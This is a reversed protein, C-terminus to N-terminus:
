EGFYRDVADPAVRAMLQRTIGNALVVAFVVGAFPGSGSPVVLYAAVRPYRDRDVDDM